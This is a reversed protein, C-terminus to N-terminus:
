LLVRSMIYLLSLQYAEKEAVAKKYDERMFFSSDWKNILAAEMGYDFLIKEEVYVWVNGISLKLHPVTRLTRYCVWICPNLNIKPKLSM